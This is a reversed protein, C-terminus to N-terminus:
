ENGNGGSDQIDVLVDVDLGIGVTKAVIEKSMGDTKKCVYM